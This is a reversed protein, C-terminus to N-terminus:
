LPVTLTFCSGKDQQSSVELSGGLSELRQQISPLGLGGESQGAVQAPDFGRGADSVVAQFQSDAQRLIVSAQRVGAHKVVNFLLERVAQFMLVKIAEREPQRPTDVHLEVVLGHTEEMWKALWQLAPVLGATKLVPPNLEATLSRSAKVAEALLEGMKEAHGQVDPDTHRRLQALRFQAAVLLQQLGDHLVQALRQRERQEAVTLETSVRRLQEEARRRRQVEQQLDQVSARLAATRELVRLELDLHAERLAADAQQRETIDRLRVTLVTEDHVTFQTITAEAPFESGDKRRGVITQRANMPRRADGSFAFQTVHKRHVARFREPLLLDLHRGLVEPESYGFIVEAGRNFLRIEQDLSTSIIADESLSVINNFYAELFALRRLLPEQTGRGDPGAGSRQPAPAALAPSSRDPAKAGRMTALLTEPPDGKSVYGQAGAEFMPRAQDTHMSLGIVRVSPHDRSILRTAEIGDMGPMNIDMLVIDPRLADTLQVAAGGNEAEGIVEVDPERELMASLAQRVVSHDDVILVRM